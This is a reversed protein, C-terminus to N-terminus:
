APVSLFINMFFTRKGISELQLYRTQITSQKIIELEVVVKNIIKKHQLNIGDVVVFGILWSLPVPIVEKIDGVMVVM